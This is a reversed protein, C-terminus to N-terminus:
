APGSTPSSNVDKVTESLAPLTSSHTATNLGFISHGICNGKGM